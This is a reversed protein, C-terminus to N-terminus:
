HAVRLLSNVLVMGSIVSPFLRGSIVRIARIKVSSLKPHCREAPPRITPPAIVRRHVEAALASLTKDFEVAPRFVQEVGRPICYLRLLYLTKLTGARMNPPM